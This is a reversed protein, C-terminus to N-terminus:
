ISQRSVLTKVQGPLLHHLPRREMGGTRQATTGGGVLAQECLAVWYSADKLLKATFVGKRHLNSSAAEFSSNLDFPGPCPTLGAEAQTVHASM